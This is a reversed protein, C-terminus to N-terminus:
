NSRNIITIIICGNFSFKIKNKLPQGADDLKKKETVVLVIGGLTVLMALIAKLEMTEGLALWSIIAAFPPNLSFVLMSIRASIHEYSKFLFYDGFVFGVLGSISMWIWNFASADTPFFRGRFFFSVIAYIIFAILLRIINVSLSGAKRTAQQFALSTATWCVATGLAIIEGLHSQVM